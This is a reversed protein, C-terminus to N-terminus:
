KKANVVKDYDYKDYIIREYPEYSSSSIDRKPLYYPGQMGALRLILFGVDHVMGPRSTAQRLQKVLDQHRNIYTDSCWVMFPIDNDCHFFTADEPHANSRGVQDRYDYAEDGHDSFYIVVTNEDRWMDFIRKMIEDNYYTANDYHAIYERKKPTLYDAKQTISDATFIRYQPNDKPYRLEPNVHQGILHFMYFNYKGRPVKSNNKFDALLNGDYTMNNDSSEDYSLAAIEKNYIFSNVTISFMQNKLYNRQNDWFFVKYGAKRMVTPLMPKEYWLEGASKDNLSFVNKQVASTANYPTIIDDFVILNGRDREAILNPTTNHEYGYLACHSKIYSEGMVFVVNLSDPETNTIPAKSVKKATKVATAIDAKSVKVYCMSYYSISFHDMADVGNDNLWKNLQKSRDCKILTVYIHSYYAGYTILPLMVIALIWKLVRRRSLTNITKRKWEMLIAIVIIATIIGYSAISKANLFYTSVFETAEKENTEALLILIRPGLPMEFNLQLFTYVAQLTILVTYVITKFTIRLGRNPMLHLVLTLMYSVFSSLALCRLGHWVNNDEIFACGVLYGITVSSSIFFVLLFFNLEEFVPKMVKRAIPKIYRFIKQM